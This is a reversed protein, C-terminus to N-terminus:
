HAVARGVPTRKVDKLARKFTKLDATAFLQNRGLESSPKIKGDHVYRRFTSISVELYEAAEQATFEDSALHGFVQVHSLNEDGFANIALLTFFRTRENAPMTKLDQYLEEATM